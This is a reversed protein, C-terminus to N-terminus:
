VQLKINNWSYCLCWLMPRTPVTMTIALPWVHSISTILNISSISPSPNNLKIQNGHNIM